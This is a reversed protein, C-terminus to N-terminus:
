EWAIPNSLVISLVGTRSVQWTQSGDNAYVRAKMTHTGNDITKTVSSGGGINSGDFNGIHYDARGEHGVRASATSYYGKNLTFTSTNTLDGGRYWLEADVNPSGSLYQTNWATSHYTVDAGSGVWEFYGSAITLTNPLYLAYLTMTDGIATLSEVRTTDSQSLKWGCLTYGSKTTSFSPHLVDKGEDAEEMGMLTEGDYYFVKTAGSWVKVYEGNKWEYGAKLKAMGTGTGIYAKKMKELLTSYRAEAM